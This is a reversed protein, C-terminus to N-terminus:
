ANQVRSTWGKMFESQTNDRAVIKKLFDLRAAKYKTVFSDVNANIARITKPGMVGDEVAGVIRQAYKVARSVGSNVAFDMINDATLQNLIADGMIPNWFNVRYFVEVWEGVESNGQLVKNLAKSSHQSQKYKDVIAWGNWKPHHVRAIGAYTEGGRDNPNNAYGGEFKKVKAYAKEFQAM